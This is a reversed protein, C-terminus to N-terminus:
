RTDLVKTAGTQSLEADRKAAREIRVRQAHRIQEDAVVLRSGSKFDGKAAQAQPKTIGSEDGPAAAVKIGSKSRCRHGGTVSGQNSLTFFQRHISCFGAATGPNRNGASDIYRKHEGTAGSIQTCIEASQISACQVVGVFNREADIGLACFNQHVLQTRFFDRAPFRRVIPRAGRPAFRDQTEDATQVPLAEINRSM